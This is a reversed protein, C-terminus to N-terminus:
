QSQAGALAQTLLSYLELQAACDTIWDRGLGKTDPAGRLACGDTRAIARELMGTDGREILKFSQDLLNGLATQNGATTVSAAPLEAVAEIADEILIEPTDAVYIYAAGVAGGSYAAGVIPIGAQNIAVRAGFYDGPQGDSATLKEENGWSAGDFEYIYAAGTHDNSHEAGAIVKDGVLSVWRGFQDGAAGDSSTIKQEEVWTAGDFRFIYLAGNPNVGDAPLVATGVALVGAGMSVSRGYYQERAGDSPTLERVLEWSSTGPNYHYAYASGSNRATANEGSCGVVMDDGFISVSAGFYDYDRAGAHVFDQVRNWGAGDFRYIYVRGRSYSHGTAGVAAVDDQISVATNGFYAKTYDGTLKAEEEYMGTVPDLRYIYAAGVGPYPPMEPHGSSGDDNHASVIMTEGTASIHIEGGYADRPQGESATIKQTENWRAGDYKFVYVAGSPAGSHTGIAAVDGSIALGGGTLDGAQADSPVLKIELAEAPLVTMVAGIALMGIFSKLGGIREKRM